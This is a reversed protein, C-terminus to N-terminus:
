KPNGHSLTGIFDFFEFVNSQKLGRVFMTALEVPNKELYSVKNGYFLRLSKKFSETDIRDMLDLVEDLLYTKPTTNPNKNLLRHMEWATRISLKKPVINM